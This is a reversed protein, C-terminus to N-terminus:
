LRPVLEIVSSTSSVERIYEVHHKTPVFVVTLNEGVHLDKLLYLLTSYKDEDRMMLYVTKLTDPLRSDTDLRILTPDKLGARAFDVLLRPLTASFLVTQRVEPLRNLIETMQEQFGM